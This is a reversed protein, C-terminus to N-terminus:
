RAVARLPPRAAAREQALWRYLREVGDGVDVRPRWGTAARFRRTDAVYYRQDGKREAAFRVAPMRGHLEALQELVELLSIANDPGGGMNFPTGAVADANARALQMAEVLDDVFLLDRVQAGDGYLTIPEEDLACIAFHAVWGQDENGHQHPGYICSMRFVVTPLGYSKAYDLVYQDAAGKSCGYPTCFDLPRSESLGHEAIARDAPEWRDDRRRLELDALSGYVKNTSTFLVFPPEDLRRAEELVNITGEVNARFDDVPDDLSTTVAVQAALHFVADARRLARRVVERDRVDSREFRVREGHVAKLWRLNREVGARALSDLVVVDEGDEVLRSVLNAGVFGAGGTVVVRSM